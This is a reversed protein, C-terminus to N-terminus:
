ETLLERDIIAILRSQCDVNANRARATEDQERQSSQENLVHPNQEIARGAQLAPWIDAHSTRSGADINVPEKILVSKGIRKV